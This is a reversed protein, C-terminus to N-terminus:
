GRPGTRYGIILGRASHIPLNRYHFGGRQLTGLMRFEMFRRIGVFGSRAAFFM